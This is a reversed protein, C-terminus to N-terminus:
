KKENLLKVFIGLINVRFISSMVALLLKSESAKTLAYKGQTIFYYQTNNLTTPTPNNFKVRSTYAKSLSSYM